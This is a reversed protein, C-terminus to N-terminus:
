FIRAAGGANSSSSPRNSATGAGLITTGGSGDLPQPWLGGPGPTGLLAQRAASRALHKAVRLFCPLSAHSIQAPRPIGALTQGVVTISPKQRPKM